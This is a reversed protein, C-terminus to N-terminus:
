SDPSLKAFYVPTWESTLGKTHNGAAVGRCSEWDETGGLGERAVVAPLRGM